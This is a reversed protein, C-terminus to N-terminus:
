SQVGPASYRLWVGLAVTSILASGLFALVGGGWEALGGALLTGVGGGLGFVVAIFVGQGTARLEPPVLRTMAAIAAVYFAGFSLGHLTQALVLPVERTVGACIVWRVIGSGFALALLHRSGLRQDLRAAMAMVAIECSAGLAMSVGVVRDPLGLAHVHVAYLTHYPSMAMWHLMSAILLAPLGPVRLLAAARSLDVGRGVRAAAPLALSAGLQVVLSAAALRPVWALLADRHHGAGTLADLAFGFGFSVLVFALSGFIRVRAYVGGRAELEALTAAEVLVLIPPHFVAYVLMLAATPWFSAAEPLVAMTLASGILATRLIVRPRGTRDALFGVVIPTIATLFPAFSLLLGIERGTMGRAGLYAPLYPLLVGLTAYYGAYALAYPALRLPVMPSRNGRVPQPPVGDKQLQVVSPKVSSQPRAGIVVIRPPARGHTAAIRAIASAAM